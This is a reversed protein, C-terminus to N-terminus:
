ERDVAEVLTTRYEQDDVVFSEVSGEADIWFDIDWQVMETTWELCIGGSTRPSISPTEMGHKGLIDVLRAARGLAAQTPPKAGYGDWNDPLDQLAKFRKIEVDRLVM